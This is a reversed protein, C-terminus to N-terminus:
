KEHIGAHYGSAKIINEDSNCIGKLLELILRIKLMYHTGNICLLPLLGTKRHIVDRFRESETEDNTSIEVTYYSSTSVPDFTRDKEQERM